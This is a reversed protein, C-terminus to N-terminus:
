ILVISYTCVTVDCQTLQLCTVLFFDAIALVTHTNNQVQIIVSLISTSKYGGNPLCGCVHHVHVCLYADVNVCVVGCVCM